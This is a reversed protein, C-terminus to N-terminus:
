GIRGWCGGVLVCVLSLLGGVRSGSRLELGDVLWYPARIERGEVIVVVGLIRM